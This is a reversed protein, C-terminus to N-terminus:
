RVHNIISGINPRHFCYPDFSNNRRTCSTAQLLMHRWSIKYHEVTKRIEDNLERQANAAANIHRQLKPIYTSGINISSVDFSLEKILKKLNFFREYILYAATAIGAGWVGLSLMSVKKLQAFGQVILSVSGPVRAWNGRGIERLVVLSERIVLNLGGVHKGAKAAGSGIDAMAEAGAQKVWGFGGSGTAIEAMEAATRRKRIAARAAENNVLRGLQTQIAYDPVMEAAGAVLPARGMAAQFAKVKAAQQMMVADLPAANGTFVVNLSPM